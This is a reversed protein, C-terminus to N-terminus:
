FRTPWRCRRNYRRLPQPFAPFLANAYRALSSLNSIEVAVWGASGADWSIHLFKDEGKHGQQEEGGQNRCGIGLHNNSDTVMMVPMAPVAVVVTM